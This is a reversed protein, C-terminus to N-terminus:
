GESMEGKLYGFVIDKESYPIKGNQNIEYEEHGKGALVIVDGDDAIDLSYRIAETRNVIVKFRSTKDIGRLIDSIIKEPEETRPNDSTVVTFDATRSSIRGMEPRKTKDRDGGCGFVAILRKSTFSRCTNLINLLADPTHAFDIVVSFGVDFESLDLVECRGKIAHLGELALASDTADIGFEECIGIACAANHVNYRGPLFLRVKAYKKGFYDFGTGNIGNDCIGSLVIDTNGKESYFRKKGRTRKAIVSSSPDDGNLVSVKSQTFLKCKSSIYDEATRHFDMHDASINTLAGVDFMCSAVRDQKLAHSSVESVVVKADKKRYLDLLRYFESPPPTTMASPEIEDGVGNGLTGIIGCKIGNNELIHKVMRCVTTKGNTGTVGVLRLYREPSSYYNSMIVACARRANNTEVFCVGGVDCVFSRKRSEYVVASAGNSIAKAIYDFGDHSTGGLAIFLDGRRVDNSNDKVENIEASFLNESARIICVGGLVESLKIFIM